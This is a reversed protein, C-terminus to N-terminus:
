LGNGLMAAKTGLFRMLLVSGVKVMGTGSKRMLLVIGVLLPLVFSEIGPVALLAILCFSTLLRSRPLRCSPLDFGRRLSLCLSSTSRTTGISIEVSSPRPEQWCCSAATLSTSACQVESGSSPSSRSTAVHCNWLVALSLCAFYKLFDPRLDTLSDACEVLSCRCCTNENTNAVAKITSTLLILTIYACLLQRAAVGHLGTSYAWQVEQGSAM